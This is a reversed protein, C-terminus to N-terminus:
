VRVRQWGCLLSRPLAHCHPRRVTLEWLRANCLGLSLLDKYQLEPLVATALLADDLSFFGHQVEM